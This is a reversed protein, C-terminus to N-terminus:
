LSNEVSGRLHGFGGVMGGGVGGRLLRLVCASRVLPGVLYYFEGVLYGSGVM